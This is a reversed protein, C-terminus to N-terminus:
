CKSFLWQLPQAFAEFLSCLVRSRWVDILFEPEFPGPWDVEAKRM